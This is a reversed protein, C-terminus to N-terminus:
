TLNYVAIFPMMVSGIWLKGDKEEVESVAKVVKGESDELIQLIKGEPSYKVVAAHFKGGNQLMYNIRTPIPLMLIIKRM